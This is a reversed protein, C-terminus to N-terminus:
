EDDIVGLITNEDTIAVRKTGWMFPPTHENFGVIVKDGAKVETVNESVQLVKFFNSSEKHADDFVALIRSKSVDNSDIPEILVDKHMLKMEEM